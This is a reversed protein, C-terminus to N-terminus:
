PNWRYIWNADIKYHLPSYPIPLLTPPYRITKVVLHCEPVVTGQRQEAVLDGVQDADVSQEAEASEHPLAWRAHQEQVRHPQALGQARSLASHKFFKLWNSVFCVAAELNGHLLKASNITHSLHSLTSSAKLCDPKWSPM